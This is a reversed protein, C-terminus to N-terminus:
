LPQPAHHSRLNREGPAQIGEPGPLSGPSLGPLVYEWDVFCVFLFKLSISLWYVGIHIYMYKFFCSLRYWIRFMYQLLYIWFKHKALENTQFKSISAVQRLHDTDNKWLYGSWAPEKNSQVKTDIYTIWMKLDLLTFVSYWGTYYYIFISQILWSLVHLLIVTFSLTPGCKLKHKEQVDKLLSEVATARNELFFFWYLIM